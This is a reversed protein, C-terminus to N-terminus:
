RGLSPGILHAEFVVLGALKNDIQLEGIAIPRQKGLTAIAQVAEFPEAHGDHQHLRFPEAAGFHPGRVTEQQAGGAIAHTGGRVGCPEGIIQCEGGAPM